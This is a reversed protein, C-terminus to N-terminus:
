GVFSQGEAGNLEQIMESMAFVLFAQATIKDVHTRQSWQDM